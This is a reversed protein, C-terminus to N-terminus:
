RTPHWFEERDIRASRWGFEEEVMASVENRDLIWQELGIISHVPRLLLEQYIPELMEWQDLKFAVSLYNKTPKSTHLTVALM